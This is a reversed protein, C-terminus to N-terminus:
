IRAKSKYLWESVLKSGKALNCEQCAPALNGISHSGGRSLPIVHDVHQSPRRCYICPASLIKSLDKATVEYAKANALRARRKQRKLSIRDPHKQAFRKSAAKTKDKNLQAYKKDYAKKSESNNTRWAKARIAYQDKNEKYHQRQNSRLEERNAERYDSKQKTLQEKNKLNYRKNYARVCSKCWSVLGDKNSKSHNFHITSLTQSCLKCHKYQSV